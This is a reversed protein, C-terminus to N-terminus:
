TIICDRRVPTFRRHSLGMIYGPIPTIDATTQVWRRFGIKEYLKIASKNVTDVLLWCTFKKSAQFIALLTEKLLRTGLGRGQATPLIGLFALEYCNPIKTLFPYYVSTARKCVLTFGIITNYEIAIYSLEPVFQKIAKKLLPIEDEERFIKRGIELITNIDNACVNRLSIM